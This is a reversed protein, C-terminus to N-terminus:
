LGVLDVVEVDGHPHDDRGAERDARARVDAAPADHSREALPDERNLRRAAKRGLDGAARHDIERRMESVRHRRGVDDRARHHTGPRRLSERGYAPAHGAVDDKRPHQSDRRRRQDGRRQVPRDFPDELAARCKGRIFIAWMESMWQPSTCKTGPRISRAILSILSWWGSLTTQEPSRVAIPKLCSYMCALAYRSRSSHSETTTM